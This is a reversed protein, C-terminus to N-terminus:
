PTAEMRTGRGRESRAARDLSRRISAADIGTEASLRSLAEAHSVGSERLAVYRQRLETMGVVALALRHAGRTRM